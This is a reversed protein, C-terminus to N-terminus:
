YRVLPRQWKQGSTGEFMASVEMLEPTDDELILHKVKDVPNQSTNPGLYQTKLIHVM